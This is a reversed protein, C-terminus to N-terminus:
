SARLVNCAVMSLADEVSEEESPLALSELRLVSDPRMSWALEVTVSSLALVSLM